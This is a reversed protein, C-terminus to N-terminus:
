SRTVHFRQAPCADEARDEVREQQGRERDDDKPRQRLDPQRQDAKPRVRVTGRRSPRRVVGAGRRSERGNEEDRNQKAVDHAAHDQAFRRADDAAHGPLEQRDPDPQDRGEGQRDRELPAEAEVALQKIRRDAHNPETEDHEPRECGDEGIQDDRVVRESLYRAELVGHRSGRHRLPRGAVVVVQETAVVQGAIHEAPHDHARAADEGDRRGGRNEREHDADRETNRRPVEPAPEVRDQRKQRVENERKGDDKQEVQEDGGLIRTVPM